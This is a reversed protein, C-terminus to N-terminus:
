CLIERQQEKLGQSPAKTGTAAKEIVAKEPVTGVISMAIM